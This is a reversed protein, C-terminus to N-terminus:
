RPDALAIAVLAVYAVVAMATGGVLVRLGALPPRLSRRRQPRAMPRALRPRHDHNMLCLREGTAVDRWVCRLTTM